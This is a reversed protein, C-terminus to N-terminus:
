SMGDTISVHRDHFSGFDSCFKFSKIFVSFTIQPL